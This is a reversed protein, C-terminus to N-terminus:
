DNHGKILSEYVGFYGLISQFYGTIMDSGLRGPLVDAMRMVSWAHQSRLGVRSLDRAADGQIFARSQGLVYPTYGSPSILIDGFSGLLGVYDRGGLVLGGWYLVLIYCLPPKM